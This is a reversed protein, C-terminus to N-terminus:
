RSPREAANSCLQGDTIYLIFEMQIERTFLVKDKAHKLKTTKM